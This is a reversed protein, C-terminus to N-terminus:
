ESRYSEPAPRLSEFDIMAIRKINDPGTLRIFNAGRVDEQEWGLKEVEEMTAEASKYDEETWKSMDDELQEGLQLGIMPSTQWPKHFLLTPVYKGWLPRLSCVVDLEHKYVDHLSREDDHQLSFTKLAVDQGKWQVKTVKSSRGIGLVQSNTEDIQEFWPIVGYEDTGMPEDSEDVSVATSIMAVECDGTQAANSTEISAGQQDETKSKKLMPEKESQTPRKSKSDSKDTGKDKGGSLATEWLRRATDKLPRKDVAAHKIFSVLTRMFSPSGFPHADSIKVCCKHHLVADEDQTTDLRIFWFMRASVVISRNQCKAVSYHCAQMVAAWLNIADSDEINGVQRQERIQDVLPGICLESQLLLADVMASPRYETETPTEKRLGLRNAFEQRKEEDKSSKTRAVKTAFGFLCLESWLQPRNTARRPLHSSEKGELFLFPTTGELVQVDCGSGGVLAYDFGFCEVFGNFLSEFVALEAIEGPRKLGMGYSRKLSKVLLSAWNNSEVTLSAEAELDEIFVDSAFNEWYEFGVSYTYYNDLEKRKTTSVNATMHRIIGVASEDPIPPLGKINFFPTDLFDNASLSHMSPHRCTLDEIDYGHGVLIKRVADSSYRTLLEQIRELQQRQDLLYLDEGPREEPVNAM